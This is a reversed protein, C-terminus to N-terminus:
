GWIGLFRRGAISWSELLQSIYDFNYSDHVDPVFKLMFKRSEAYASAVGIFCFLISCGFYLMSVIRLAPKATMSSAANSALSSTNGVHTPKINLGESAMWSPLPLLSGTLNVLWKHSTPM